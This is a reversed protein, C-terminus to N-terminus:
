FGYDVLVLDGNKRTGWHELQDLDDNILDFRKLVKRLLTITRYIKTKQRKNKLSSLGRYSYDCCICDIFDSFIIGTHKLFQDDSEFVNIKEAIIWNFNKDYKYIKALCKKNKSTLYTNVEKKNQYYPSRDDNWDCDSLALKLVKTKTYDYVIRASGSGLYNPHDEGDDLTNPFLNIAVM